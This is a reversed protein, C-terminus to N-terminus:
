GIGAGGVADDRHAARFAFAPASGFAGTRTYAGARPRGFRYSEARYGAQATRSRRARTQIALQTGGGGYRPFPQFFPKPAPPEAESQARDALHTEHLSRTAEELTIVLLSADVPKGSPRYENEDFSVYPAIDIAKGTRSKPAATQSTEPEEPLVAGFMPISGGEEAPTNESESPEQAAEAQGAANEPLPEAKLARIPAETNDADSGAEAFEPDPAAEIKPAAAFIPLENFDDEQQTERKAGSTADLKRSHKPSLARFKEVTKDYVAKAEEAARYSQRTNQLNPDVGRLAKPPKAGGTEPAPEAEAEAEHRSLYTLERLWEQEQRHRVWLVGAIACLLVILLFTWLM